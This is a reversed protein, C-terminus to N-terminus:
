LSLIGAEALALVLQARTALGLREQISDLASGLMKSFGEAQNAIEALPVGARLSEIIESETESLGVLRLLWRQNSGSEVGQDRFFEVLEDTDLHDDQSAAGRLAELLEEPTEEESVMDTAGCRIAELAMAGSGFPGTLVFRPLQQEVGINRRLFRRTLESGSLSRLRNDVLLVDVALEGIAELAILGDSEEYVIDFDPQSQLLLRRGERIIRNGFILGIRIKGAM